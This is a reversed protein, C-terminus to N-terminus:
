LECVSELLTKNHLILEERTTIMEAMAVWNDNNRNIMDRAM